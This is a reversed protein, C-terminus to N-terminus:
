IPRLVKQLYVVDLLRDFKHGVQRFHACLKYGNKEFLKRSPTNEEAVGAILTHMDNQQAFAELFRIAISGIGKGTHGHRLYINIEATNDYAEQKKWPSIACYGIIVNDELVVFSQHVPKHFFVKERMDAASLPALHFSVTTNLIYYNIVEALEALHEERVAMFSYTM